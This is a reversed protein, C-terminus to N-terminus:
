LLQCGKEIHAFVMNGVNKLIIHSNGEMLVDGFFTELCAFVSNKGSDRKSLDILLISKVIVGAKVPCKFFFEARRWFFKFFLM